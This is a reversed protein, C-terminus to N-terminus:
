HSTQMRLIVAGHLVACSFWPKHSFCPQPCYEFVETVCLFYSGLLFLLVMPYMVHNLFVCIACYIPCKVKSFDQVKRTSTADSPNCSPFDSSTTPLSKDAIPFADLLHPPTRSPECGVGCLCGAWTPPTNTKHNRHPCTLQTCNEAIVWHKKHIFDHMLLCLIQNHESQEWIYWDCQFLNINEFCVNHCFSCDQSFISTWTCGEM